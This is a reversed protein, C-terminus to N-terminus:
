VNPVLSLHPLVNRAYGPVYYVNTSHPIQTIGQIVVLQVLVPITM